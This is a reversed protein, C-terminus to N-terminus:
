FQPIEAEFIRIKIVYCFYNNWHNILLYLSALGFDINKEPEWLIVEKDMLKTAISVSNLSMVGSLLVHM